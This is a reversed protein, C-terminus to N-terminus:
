IEEQFNITLYKSNYKLFLNIPFISLFISNLNILENRFTFQDLLYSDLEEAFGKKLEPFSALKRREFSSIEKDKMIISLLGFGFIVLIFLITLIKNKM